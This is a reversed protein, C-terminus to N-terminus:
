KTARKLAVRVLADLEADEDLDGIDRAVASAAAVPKFALNQLASVADACPSGTPVSALTKPRLAADADDPQRQPTLHPNDTM